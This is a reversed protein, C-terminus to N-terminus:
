FPVELYYRVGLRLAGRLMREEDAYIAYLDKTGQDGRFLSTVQECLSEVHAPMMCPVWDPFAKAGGAQYSFDVEFDLPEYDAAFEPIM